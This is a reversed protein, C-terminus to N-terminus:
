GTIRGIRLVLADVTEDFPPWPFGPVFQRMMVAGHMSTWLCTADAFPDTSASRGAAVCASLGEVLVEFAQLRSRWRPPVDELRLPLKLEPRGERLRNFLVRYRAPERMAFDVYAHCGALLAEVPDTHSDGTTDVILQRLREFAIDLVAEVIADRDAFHAYISPAAIGAERAVSRLTIAAEDGERELIREAAAVIEDRLLGGEGRRNRTRGGSTNM